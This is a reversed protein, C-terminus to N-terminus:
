IFLNPNLARGNHRIEFHLHPGTSNGTSGVEAIKQGQAVTQGAEVVNRSNHAYLTEVGNGHDIAVIIGFGTGSPGSRTVTGSAAAFIPTGMPAAIDLGTHFGGRRPGFRSTERGSTPRIFNIGLDPRYSANAPTAAVVGGRAVPRTVPAPRVFLSAVAAEADTFETLENSNVRTYAINSANASGQERLRTIIEEAVERSEVHKQVEDNVVIAYYRYYTVGTGKLRALIEEDNTETDRRVLRLSYEPLVSIDVFSVNAGDGATM